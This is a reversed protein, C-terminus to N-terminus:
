GELRPVPATWGRWAAVLRLAVVAAAAGAQVVVGERGAAAALVVAASGLVAPIAYLRSDQQFLM